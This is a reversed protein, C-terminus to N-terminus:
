DMGSPPQCKQPSTNLIDYIENYLNGLLKITEDILNVLSVAEEIPYARGEPNLKRSREEVEDDKSWEGRFLCIMINNTQPSRVWVSHALDNRQSQCQRISARISQLDGKVGIEKLRLLRILLKFQEAGDQDKVTLRGLNDDVGIILYLTRDIVWELRAFSVVVRGIERAYSAPVCHITPLEDPVITKMDSDSVSSSISRRRSAASKRARLV